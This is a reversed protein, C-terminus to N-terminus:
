VRAHPPEVVLVPLALNADAPPSTWLMAFAYVSVFILISIGVFVISILPVQDFVCKTM